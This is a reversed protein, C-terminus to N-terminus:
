EVDVRQLIEGTLWDNRAGEGGYLSVGRLGIRHALVEPAIEKVTDISVWEQGRFFALAQAAHMLAISGRPSVPLEVEEHSRISTMLRSIYKLVPEAVQIARVQAQAAVVDNLGLFGQMAADKVPNVHKRLIEIESAEDPYGLSIRMMFRDRQSEPLPYTGHFGKPNQTAIVMFPRALELHQKEVSVAFENMAQLLASQTKPPARNLEDALIVNAFIAGKIFEFDETQRRYIRTGLVDSPLLDATFQIRSFEGGIAHALASALTTKGVGPMDELLLHGEALLCVLTKEIQDGKGVIVQKLSVALQLFSERIKEINM